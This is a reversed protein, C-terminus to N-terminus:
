AEVDVSSPADDQARRRETRRQAVRTDILVPVQSKRREATRRTGPRRKVVQQPATVSDPREAVIRGGPYSGPEIPDVPATPTVEAPGEPEPRTVLPTSIQNIRM